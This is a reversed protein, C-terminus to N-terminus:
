IHWMPSPCSMNMMDEAKSKFHHMDSTTMNSKMKNAKHSIVWVNGKVYGATPIIKDLTPSNLSISKVNPALPIGLIPCAEPIVIDSLDLSFPVRQKKARSKASFYLRYENTGCMGHKGWAKRSCGCHTTKRTTLYPRRIGCVTSGCQCQCDWTTVSGGSKCARVTKGKRIVTLKGFVKGVLNDERERVCGRGKGGCCTVQGFRLHTGRVLSHKGCDCLCEWIITGKKDTGVPKLATLSGFKQGAIDIRKNPM